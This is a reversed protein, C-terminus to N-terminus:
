HYKETSIQGPDRRRHRKLGRAELVEVTDAIMGSNGCLMVHSRTPDLSTGVKQELLGETIALPIRAQLAGRHPEGTILPVFRFREPHKQQLSEILARYHLNAAHRVSYGLAVREFRQWPEDTQLMSLFPGVGTGTALLWLDRAQDPVEDLTLFGNASDTLYLPDGVDLSALRGSLPGEPVINFFIELLPEHPPNVLSYPRGVREEGLDMGVRIFQGAVFRPGEAEIALSYHTENWRTKRAVQGSLWQAM